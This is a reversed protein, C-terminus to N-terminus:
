LADKTAPTVSKAVPSRQHMRPRELKHSHDPSPKDFLVTLCFLLIRGQEVSLLLCSRQVLGAHMVLLLALLAQVRSCAGGLNVFSVRTVLVWKTFV